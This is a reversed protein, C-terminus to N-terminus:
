ESCIVTSAARTSLMRAMYSARLKGSVITNASQREVAWPTSTVMTLGNLKAADGVPPATGCGCGSIARTCDVDPSYASIPTTIRVSVLKCATDSATDDKEPALPTMGLVTASARM